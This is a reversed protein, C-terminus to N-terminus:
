PTVDVVSYAVKNGKANPIITCERRTMVHVCSNINGLDILRGPM